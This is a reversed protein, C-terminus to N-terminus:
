CVAWCMETVIKGALRKVPAFM